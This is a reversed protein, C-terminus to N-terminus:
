ESPIAIESIRLRGLSYGALQIASGSFAIGDINNGIPRGVLNYNTIVYGTSPNLELFIEDGVVCFLRNNVLCLDKIVSSTQTYSLLDGLLNFKLLIGQRLLTHVAMLYCYDTGMSIGTAVWNSGVVKRYSFSALTTTDFLTRKEITSDTALWLFSGAVDVARTGSSLEYTYTGDRVNLRILYLQSNDNTLVISLSDSYCYAIILGVPFYTQESIIPPKVSWGYNNPSTDVRKYKRSYHSLSDGYFLTDGDFNYWFRSRSGYDYNLVITSTDVIFNGAFERRIGFDYGAQELFRLSTSDFSIHVSDSEAYLNLWTGHFMGSSSNNNSPPFPSGPNENCSNSLFIGILLLLFLISNLKRMKGHAKIKVRM